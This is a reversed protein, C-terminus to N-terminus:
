DGTDARPGAGGEAADEDEHGEPPPAGPVSQDARKRKWDEVVARVRGELEGSRRELEDAECELRDALEKPDTDSM